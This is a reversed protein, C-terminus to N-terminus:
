EIKDSPTSESGFLFKRYGMMTMEYQWYLNMAYLSYMGFDEVVSCIWMKQWYFDKVYNLLHLYRIIELSLVITRTYVWSLYFTGFIVVRYKYTKEFERALKSLNLLPEIMLHLILIPLGVRFKNCLISSLMISITITHHFYFLWFTPENRRYAILEVYREVEHGLCVFFFIVLGKSPHEFPYEEHFRSLDLTGGLARPLFPTGVSLALAVAVASSYYILGSLDNAIRHIRDTESENKYSQKNLQRKIIGFMFHRCFYFITTSYLYGVIIFPWYQFKPTLNISKMFLYIDQSCHLMYLFLITLPIQLYFCVKETKQRISLRSSKESM